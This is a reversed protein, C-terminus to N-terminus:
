EDKFESVIPTVFDFDVLDSKNINIMITLSLILVKGPVWFKRIHFVLKNQRVPHLSAPQIAKFVGIGIGASSITNKIWRSLTMQHLKTHNEMLLLFQKIEPPVLKKRIEIYVKACEAVFNLTEM